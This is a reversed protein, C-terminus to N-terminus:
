DEDRCALCALQQMWTYATIDQCIIPSPYNNVFVDNTTSEKRRNSFMLLDLFKEHIHSSITVGDIFHRINIQPM